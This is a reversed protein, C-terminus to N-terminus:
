RCSPSTPDLLEDVADLDVVGRHDVPALRGGLREVPHLVAHHEIATAVVMGGRRAHAGLLALNDAETGSGTLVM